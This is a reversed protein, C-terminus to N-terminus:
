IEQLVEELIRLATDIEGYEVTLPPLLRVTNNGAPVVLLGKEFCKM